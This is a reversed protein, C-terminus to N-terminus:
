SNALRGAKLHLTRNFLPAFSENHTVVILSVNEARQLDIFLKGIMHGTAADLNGTPEDCLLLRPRNIMARAIAVRQREGGSLEAPWSNCRNGLGVRELLEMACEVPTLASTPGAGEDAMKRALTPVLVNEIATCQPLLAHDQFVFGITRNRFAAVENPKLAFPDVGDVSVRGATPQELAGIIHLLTSKGSGSPGMIAVSEGRAVSLNLDDLVITSGGASSFEKRLGDIEVLTGDQAGM